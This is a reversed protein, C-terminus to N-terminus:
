HLGANRYCILGAGASYATCPRLSFWHVPRARLITPVLGESERGEGKCESCVRVALLLPLLLADGVCRRVSTPCVCQAM